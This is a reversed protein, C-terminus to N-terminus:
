NGTISISGYLPCTPKTHLIPGGFLDTGCILIFSTLPYSAETGRHCSLPGTKKVYWPQLVRPYIIIHSFILTRAIFALINWRPPIIVFHWMKRFLVCHINLGNIFSRIIMTYYIESNHLFAQNAFASYLIFKTEHLPWQTGKINNPEWIILHLVSLKLWHLVAFESRECFWTGYMMILCRQRERVQGRLCLILTGTFAATAGPM